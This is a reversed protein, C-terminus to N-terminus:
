TPCSCAANSRMKRRSTLFTRSSFTPQAFKSTTAMDRLRKLDLSLSIQEAVNFITGYRQWFRRSNIDTHSPPHDPARSQTSNRKRQPTSLQV